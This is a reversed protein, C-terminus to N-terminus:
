IIKAGTKMVVVDDEVRVGGFGPIYIGPEDSLVMGEMLKEKSGPYLGPGLDHVEVGIAHGLSHIFRGKYMKGNTTDIFKAVDNHPAECRAGPRIAALGIKQATKVTNYMDVMKKYKASKKDPKFIYTRTVDSCYNKYVAGCDILVISNRALRKEEPMHHPMSSNEGFCVITPFSPGSAGYEVMLSDIKAAIQKETIGEKFFAQVNRLAKKIIRNATSIYRLETKDKISRAKYLAPTADVFRKARSLKKLRKYSSYPLFGSNVGVSKRGLLRRLQRLTDSRKKANIVTMERPKQKTAIEYELQNTILYLKSRTAILLAREFVGSTFGTLYAFNPDRFETNM